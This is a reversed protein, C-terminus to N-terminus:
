TMILIMKECHKSINITYMYKRKRMIEMNEDNSMIEM